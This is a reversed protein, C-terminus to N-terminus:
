SRLHPSLSPTGDRSRRSEPDSAFYVLGNLVFTAYATQYLDSSRGVADPIDVTALPATLPAESM